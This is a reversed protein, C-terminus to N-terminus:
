INTTQMENTVHQQIMNKCNDPFYLKFCTGVGVKSEVTITGNHKKVLDNCLLLGLGSGEENNTGKTTVYDAFNFIKVINEDSIGVGQDTICVVTGQNLTNAQIYISKGSPTFKIANSILNRLITQLINKDACITLENDINNVIHVNKNKRMQAYLDIVPDLVKNINFTAPTFLIDNRQIKAWSLLNELLEFTIETSQQIAELFIKIKSSDYIDVKTIMLNVLGKLAGIPGRLDHGIISFLKDKTANLEVLKLESYKEATIDVIVEVVGVENNSIDRIPNTFIKYYKKGQPTELETNVVMPKNFKDRNNIDCVNCRNGSIMCISYCFSNSLNLVSDTGLLKKMQENCDVIRSQNDIVNIAAPITEFVTKLKNYTEQLLKEAQKRATIDETHVMILDDPLNVYTTRMLKKLGTSQFTYENEFHIIAQKQFCAELESVVPSTTGFIENASLYLLNKIHGNTIELAAYNYEILRFQSDSTRKWTYTPIPINKYYKKFRDESEILLKELRLKELRDSHQEM